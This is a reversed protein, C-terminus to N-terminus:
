NRSTCLAAQTPDKLRLAEGDVFLGGNRYEALGTLGDLETVSHRCRDPARDAFLDAMAFAQSPFMAVASGRMGGPDMSGPMAWLHAELMLPSPWISGLADLSRLINRAAIQGDATTSSPMPLVEPAPVDAIAFVDPSHFLSRWTNLLACGAESAALPNGDRVQFSASTREHLKVLREADLAPRPAKRLVVRSVSSFKRCWDKPLSSACAADSTATTGDGGPGRMSCCPPSPLTSRAGPRERRTM